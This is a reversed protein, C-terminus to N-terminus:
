VKILSNRQSKSLIVFVKHSNRGDSIMNQRVTDLPFTIVVDHIDFPVWFFCCRIDSFMPDRKRENGPEAQSRM